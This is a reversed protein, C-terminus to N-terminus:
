LSNPPLEATSSLKHKSVCHKPRQPRHQPMNDHVRPALSQNKKHGTITNKQHKKHKKKKKKKQKQGANKQLDRLLFLLSDASIRIVGGGSFQQNANNSHWRMAANTRRSIPRGINEPCKTVKNEMNKCMPARQELRPHWRWEVEMRRTSRPGPTSGHACVMSMKVYVVTVGDEIQQSSRCGWSAGLPM